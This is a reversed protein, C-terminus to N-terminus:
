GRGAGTMPAWVEDHNRRARAGLLAELKRRPLRGACFYQGDLLVLPAMVPRHQAVLRRGEGSDVAFRDVTFSYRQLLDSLVEDAHECLHCAPASVVTLHALPAPQLQHM